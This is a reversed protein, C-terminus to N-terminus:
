MAPPCLTSSSRTTHFIIGSAAVAAFASIVPSAAPEVAVVRVGPRRKKLARATGTLVSKFRDLPSEDSM